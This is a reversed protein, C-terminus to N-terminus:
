KRFHNFGPQWNVSFLITLYNDTWYPQDPKLLRVSYVGRGDAAHFLFSFPSNTPLCLYDDAQRKPDSNERIRTCDMGKIPKKVSWRIHLDESACFHHDTWHVTSPKPSKNIQICHMHEISGVPSWAFTTGDLTTKQDAPIQALTTATAHNLILLFSFFVIKLATINM